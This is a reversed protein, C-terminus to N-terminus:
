TYRLMLDDDTTMQIRIQGIIKKKCYQFPLQGPSLIPAFITPLGLIKTGFEARACRRRTKHVIYTISNLKMKFNCAKSFESDGDLRLFCM